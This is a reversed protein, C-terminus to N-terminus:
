FKILQYLILINLLYWVFEKTNTACDKDDHLAGCVKCVLHARLM